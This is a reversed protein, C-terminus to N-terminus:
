DSLVHLSKGVLSEGEDTFEGMYPNTWEIFYDENFLIIGIPMELLAEKGVKKVRHSITAIYKETEHTQIREKRLSYYFSAALLFTMMLGLVWQFYWIVILFFLSVVYIVILHRSIKPKNSEAAM